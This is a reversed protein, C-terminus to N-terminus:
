ATSCILAATCRKWFIQRGVGMLYRIKDQPMHEEVAEIVEYMVEAPEGVALGGIAYGDLGLEAIEKMHNVRLDIYTCGQNIGFLMQNPNITDPLANLRNMEAKCRRLWRATRACSNKAYDYEAPNEVCEDFAMAITSGLNSQIRM